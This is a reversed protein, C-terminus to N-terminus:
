FFRATVQLVGVSGSTKNVFRFNAIENPNYLTLTTGATLVHGVASGGQTPDTSSISYRVDFTECTIFVCGAVYDDASRILTDPLYQMVDTGSLRQTTTADGLEMLKRKYYFAEIDQISMNNIKNSAM